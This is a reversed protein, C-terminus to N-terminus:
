IRVISYVSTREEQYSLVFSDLGVDDTGVCLAPAEGGHRGHGRVWGLSVYAYGCVTDTTDAEMRLPVSGGRGEDRVQDAIERAVSDCGERPKAGADSRTMALSARCDM